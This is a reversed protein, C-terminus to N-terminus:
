GKRDYLHRAMSSFIQDILEPTASSDVHIQLNLHVTPKTEGSSSQETQTSPLEAPVIPPDTSDTESSASIPDVTADTTEEIARVYSHGSIDEVLGLYNLNASFVVAAQQRDANPIGSRELEDALVVEDPLRQNALREYVKRFPDFRGIALEFGKHRVAQSQNTASVVQGDDTVSLAPASYSGTTLGYKASNTILTRTLSSEPSKKLKGFLTLRQIEGNVGHEVISRPLVLAEEFTMSPFPKNSGRSRKRAPPSTPETRLEQTM